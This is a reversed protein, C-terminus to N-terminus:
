YDSTTNGNAHVNEYNARIRKESMDGSYTYFNILLFDEM